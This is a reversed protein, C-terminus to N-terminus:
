AAGVLAYLETREPVGKLDYARPELKVDLGLLLDRVTRTVLVESAGATALVRAAVHVAMGGVDDGRMEVMGTHIGARIELGLDRVAITLAGACELATQPDDFL